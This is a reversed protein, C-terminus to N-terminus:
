RQRREVSDLKNLAHLVGLREIPVGISSYSSRMLIGRANIHAYSRLGVESGSSSYAELGGSSEESITLALPGRYQRIWECLATLISGEIGPSSPTRRQPLLLLESAGSEEAVAVVSELESVTASNVVCNIGFPAISRVLTLKEKLSAFSKGRINEYTAGVGDMSVRIFHVNKRIRQALFSTIRHAHTTMTVALRTQRAGFECIEAFDPHLTPEGGGFGVGLCGNESLESLWACVTEGALAAPVKPAYCFHCSLDCANTLAISLLSPARSWIENPVRVEDCLINIGTRRSFFHVGAPEFRVSLDNNAVKQAELGQEGRM